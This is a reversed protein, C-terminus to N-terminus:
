VKTDARPANSGYFCRVDTKALNEADNSKEIKAVTDGSASERPQLRAQQINPQHIPEILGVLLGFDPAIQVHCAEDVWNSGIEKM